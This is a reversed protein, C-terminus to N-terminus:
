ETAIYEQQSIRQVIRGHRCRGIGSDLRDVRKTAEDNDDHREIVNPVKDAGGRHCELRGVKGASGRGEEEGAPNSMEASGDEGEGGPDASEEVFLIAAGFRLEGTEEKRAAKPEDQQFEGGDTKQPHELNPNLAGERDKENEPHEAERHNKEGSESIQWNAEKRRETKEDDGRVVQEVADVGRTKATEREQPVDRMLGRPKRKVATEEDDSVRENRPNENHRCAITEAVNKAPIRWTAALEQDRDAGGTGDKEYNKAREIVVAVRRVPRVLFGRGESKEREKIGGFIRRRKQKQKHRKARREDGEGIKFFEIEGPGIGKDDESAHRKEKEEKVDAKRVNEIEDDIENM